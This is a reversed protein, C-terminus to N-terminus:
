ELTLTLYTRRYRHRRASGSVKVRVRVRVKVRVRVRVRVRVGDLALIRDGVALESAGHALHTPDLASVVNQTTLSIGM